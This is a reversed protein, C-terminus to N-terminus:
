ASKNPVPCHPQEGDALPHQATGPRQRAAGNEMQDEDSKWQDDMQERDVKTQTIVGSPSIADHRLYCRDAGIQVAVILAARQPEGAVHDGEPRCRSLCAPAERRRTRQSPRNRQAGTGAGPSRRSTGGATRWPPTGSRPRRRGPRGRYNRAAAQPAAACACRRVRPAPSALHPVHLGCSNVAWEGLLGSGGHSEIDSHGV